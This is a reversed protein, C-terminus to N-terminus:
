DGTDSSALLLIGSVQIGKGYMSLMLILVNERWIKRLGNETVAMCIVRGMSYLYRLELLGVNGTFYVCIWM